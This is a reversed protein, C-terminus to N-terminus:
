KAAGPPTVGLSRFAADLDDWLTQSVVWGDRLEVLDFVPRGATIGSWSGSGVQRTRNILWTPGTAVLGEFVIRMDQWAELFVRVVELYGEIGHYTESLDPPVFARNPVSFTYHSPHLLITNLEWDRRNFAAYGRSALYRLLATRARSPHAAFTNRVLVRVPDPYRIGLWGVLGRGRRAQPTTLAAAAPHPGTRV